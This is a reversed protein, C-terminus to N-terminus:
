KGPVIILGREEKERVRQVREIEMCVFAGARALNVLEEGELRLLEEQMPWIGAVIRRGEGFYSAAALAYCAGAGALEGNVAMAQQKGTLGEAELGAVAEAILELGAKM